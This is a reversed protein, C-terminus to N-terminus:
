IRLLEQEKKGALEDLLKNAGDVAKQIEKKSQEQVDESVGDATGILDLFDHRLRRVKVRADELLLNVEKVKKQRSDETLPPVSIFIELEHPEISLGTNAKRLSDEIDKLTSKDWPQLRFKGELVEITTLAKLEMVQGGYAAVEVPIKEIMEPKPRGTHISDFVGQLWSRIEEVEKDFESRDFLESM